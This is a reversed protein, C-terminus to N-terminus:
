WKEDDKGLIIYTIVSVAMFVLSIICRIIAQGLTISNIELSGVTGFLYILSLFMLLPMYSQLRSKTRQNM